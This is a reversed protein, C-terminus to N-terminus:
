RLGGDALVESASIFRADHSCLLRMKNSIPESGIESVGSPYSDFSVTPPYGTLRFVARFLPWLKSSSDFVSARERERERPSPPALAQRGGFSDQVSRSCVEDVFSVRWARM